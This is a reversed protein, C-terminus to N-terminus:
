AYGSAERVLDDDRTCSYGRVKMAAVVRKEHDLPLWLYDGSILTPQPSGFEQQVEAPLWDFMMQAPWEPWDGDAYGLIREADFAEEPAPERAGEEEGEHTFREVAEEYRARGVLVRFEGWTKVRNLAAHLVKLELAHTRPVFVLGDPVEGYVVERFENLPRAEHIVGPKEESAHGTEERAERILQQAWRVSKGMADFEEIAKKVVIKYEDSVAEKLKELAEKSVVDLLPFPESWTLTVGEISLEDVEYWFIQSAQPSQQVNDATPFSDPDDWGFRDPDFVMRQEGTYLPPLVERYPKLLKRAEAPTLKGSEVEGAAAIMMVDAEHTFFIYGEQGYDEGDACFVAYRGNAPADGGSGQECETNDM